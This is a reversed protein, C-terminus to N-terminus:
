CCTTTTSKTPAAATPRNWPMKELLIAMGCFGTTGALLLGAGVFIALGIWGKSVFLSLLTGILILGGAGVQVQRMLPLRTSATKVVPLSADMWAKTGGELVILGDHHAKLLECTMGARRGSQCILIVPDQRQLDNLRAEAQDMPLNMAGPVHGEAYEQPSRVDILQFREGKSLRASLEKVTVKPHTPNARPSLTATSM